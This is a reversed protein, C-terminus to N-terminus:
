HGVRSLECGSSSILKQVAEYRSWFGPRSLEEREMAQGGGPIRPPM